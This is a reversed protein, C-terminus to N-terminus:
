GISGYALNSYKFKVSAVGFYDHAQNGPFLCISLISQHILTLVTPYFWSGFSHIYIYVLLNCNLKINMSFLVASGFKM